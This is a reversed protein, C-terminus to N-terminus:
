RGRRRRRRARGRPPRRSWSKSTAPTRGHTFYAELLANEPRTPARGAVGAWHLLRHADFTNYIRSADDDLTFGVEAARERIM